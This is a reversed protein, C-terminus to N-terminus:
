HGIGAVLETMKNRLETVAAGDKESLHDVRITDATVDLELSRARRWKPRAASPGTSRSYMTLSAIAVSPMGVVRDSAATTVPSLTIRSVSNGPATRVRTADLWM